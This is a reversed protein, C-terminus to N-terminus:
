YVAKPLHFIKAKQKYKSYYSIVKTVAKIVDNVDKESLNSSFPLSITRDSVFESYPFNGRKYGYKEKYYIM